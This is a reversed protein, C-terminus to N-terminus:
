FTKAISIAYSRLRPDGHQSYTGVAFNDVALMPPRTGLVNRISGLIEVGNLFSWGAAGDEGFRYRAFLDHYNQSPIISSGQWLLVDARRSDSDGFSYASYSDYYQMNWGAAWAGRTWSLGMNGRLKLPGRTLGVLEAFPEDPLLQQRLHPQLTGILNATFEGYATQWTYDTQVDYAETKTGAVNVYGANFALIPGGTYGLAEDAPTLPGRVVRDGFARDELDLILQQGVRDNIENVKDIRTYDVSVRLGPIAEPTFILGASLSESEEPQLTPSGGIVLDTMSLLNEGGRKPDTLRTQYFAVSSAPFRYPAIQTIAPPLVGEGYSARLALQSFPQYRVGFTYQNGETSNRALEYQPYPGEPAPIVSGAVDLLGPTRSDSRDQRYSAQLELGQVGPRANPAGVLPATIEAYASDTNWERAPYYNYTPVGESTYTTRVTAKEDGQERRELLMSLNVAGGPLRWVPGALRLTANEMLLVRQYTAQPMPSVYYPSFDLPYANVDRLPDLRGDILAAQGDGTFKDSNQSYFARSTAWNYEGQASWGGPLRLVLGGVIGRLETDVESRAIEDSLNALPMTIRVPETFPNSPGVPLTQFQGNRFAVAIGDISTTTQSIDVFAEIRESFERRVSLSMSRATPENFLEKRLGALYGDNSLDTNFGGATQLFAAGGDSDPGAYGVPVHTRDSGLSQGTSTLVLPNGSASRINTTYGRIPNGRIDLLFSEPDNALQRERARAEFERDGAWLIQSDTYSALATISTRGGELVFSGSAELRRKSGGGQTTGDYGARLQLGQYDRKLIINVVGGTAGGGYIGGATSPLIEIREISALPIGNFDPQYVNPGSPGPTSPLRRGNVLVLTEDAGLGRLNIVSRGAEVDGQGSGPEANQNMPLRRRLFDELTSAMANEIDEADFVVYPQVDDESRRIGTNASRRGKVLIEPVGKSSDDGAVAHRQDDEETASKRPQASATSEALEDTDLRALTLGANATSVRASSAVAHEITVTQDDLYRYTLGTGKLLRQLAEEITFEGSAGATRLDSVVDTRFVVQINRERSLLQLAPRLAQAPINTSQRATTAAECVAAWGTLSSCVLIMTATLMRM